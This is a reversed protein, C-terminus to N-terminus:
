ISGWWSELVVPYRIDPVQNKKMYDKLITRIKSEQLPSGYRYRVGGSSLNEAMRKLQGHLDPLNPNINLAACIFPVNWLNDPDNRTLIRVIKVFSIDGPFSQRKYVIVPHGLPNVKEYIKVLGDIFEPKENSLNQITIKRYVDSGPYYSEALKEKVVVVYNATFFNRSIGGDKDFSGYNRFATKFELPVDLNSSTFHDNFDRDIIPFTELSTPNYLYSNNAVFVLAPKESTCEPKCHDEIFEFVEIFGLKEYTLTNTVAANKSFFRLGGLGFFQNLSQISIGSLGHSWSCTNNLNLLLILITLVTCTKQINKSCRGIYDLLYLCLIVFIPLLFLIARTVKTEVIFSMYIIATILTLFLFSLRDSCIRKISGSLSLKKTKDIRTKLWIVLFITFVILFVSLIPFSIERFVVVPFWLLSKILGYLRSLLLDLIEIQPISQTSHAYHTVTEAVENAYYLKSILERLTRPAIFYSLLCFPLTFTLTLSSLKRFIGKISGGNVWLADVLRIFMFCATVIGFYWLFIPKVQWGLAAIIGALVVKVSRYPPDQIKSLAASYLMVWAALAVDGYLVVSFDFYLPMAWVCSIAAAVTLPKCKASKLIAFISLAMILHYFATNVLVLLRYNLTGGTLELLVVAPWSFVPREATQLAEILGKLGSLKEFHFGEFTFLADSYYVRADWYVSPTEATITRNFVYLSFVLLQILVIGVGIQVGSIRIKRM